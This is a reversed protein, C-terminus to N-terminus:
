IGVTFGIMWMGVGAGDFTYQDGALTSAFHTYDVFLSGSAVVASLRYEFGAGVLLGNGGVNRVGSDSSLWTRHVGAKGFAEFNSGLPLSYKGALSLEKAALPVDGGNDHFALNQGTIAAEIALRGFRFGGLLRVSRGGSGILGDTGNVNASPGVGLGVFGGATATGTSAALLLSTALLARNM